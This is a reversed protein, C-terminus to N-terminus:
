ACELKGNNFKIFKKGYVLNEMEHTVLVITLNLESNLKKLIEMVEKTAVYDLSGTPEDCFLVKPKNVLSRVIAVRQKQGGSLSAPYKNIISELKFESILSDVYAKDINKNLYQMLMINDYVNLEDILMFDQYIFGSEKVKISAFDKDKLSYIDIDNWYVKGVTPKQIGSLNKLLTTKGSGSPGTIIVFDGDEITFNEDKFLVQKSSGNKYESTINSVKIM